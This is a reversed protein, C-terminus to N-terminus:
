RRVGVAHLLDTGAALSAPTLAFSLPIHAPHLRGRRRYELSGPLGDTSTSGAMARSEFGARGLLTRLGDATFHTRHRPLDLHFWEAGFRGAQRSGFDPLSILVLGGPALLARARELDALPDTVHELSHTFSIADFPGQVAGDALLGATVPVGRERAAAAAGESPELGLVEWGRGQMVLLLDGRGSGVDLLRGTRNRVASLPPRRFGLAFRARFLATAAARAGPNGPLGHAEYGDPYFTALEAPEAEPFTRGTGCAPCVRVEFAGPTGHLLDAGTITAEGPLEAGCAPCATV